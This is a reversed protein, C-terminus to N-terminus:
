RQAAAADTMPTPGPPPPAAAGPPANPDVGQQQMQEQKAIVAKLAEPDPIIKDVDMQLGKALERLLAARGQTGMIQMDIPNSTAQLFAKRNEQVAERQILGLTGKAVVRCDGKLTPDPDTALLNLYIRTILRSVANDINGIAQKIGKSANDMLMSLGSATRGAGSVQPSGYTYNPIGTVEDAKRYYWDMVEQLEQANSSPQFFEVAKSAAGSRDSKALWLKWPYISEVSTVGNHLRDVNVVTQPGSALAMNNSLARGCANIMRQIDAMIEAPCSGWWSGPVDDWSAKFYPRIGFPDPNIVAKIVFDGVLWAEIEYPRNDELKSLGLAEAENGAWEKLMKGQVPGWFQQAEITSRYMSGTMGRGELTDRENDFAKTVVLGKDAYRDIALDIESDKYGVVGKMNELQTLFLRHRQVFPGDNIDVSDGSPYCDFPSVRSFEQVIVDKIVPSGNADWDLRRKKKPVPGKLIAAPYTTFDNIFARLAEDWGGEDLIDEIKDEMNQVRQKAIDRLKQLLEDRIDDVRDDFADDHVDIGQSQLSNQETAVNQLIEAELHPPLTPISTPDLTWAKEGNTFMVDNIWSEASRCKINTLNVFITSGGQQNIEALERPDYKGRRLRQCTLLRMTTENNKFRVNQEFVKRIHAALGSQLSSPDGSIIEEQGELKMEEQAALIKTTQAPSALQLLGM